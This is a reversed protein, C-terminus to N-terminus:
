EPNINVLKERLKQAGKKEADFIDEQKLHKMIYNYAKRSDFFLTRYNKSPDCRLPFTLVCCNETYFEIEFPSFWDRPHVFMLTNSRKSTLQMWGHYTFLKNFQEFM